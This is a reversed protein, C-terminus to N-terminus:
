LKKCEELMSNTWTSRMSKAKEDLAAVKAELKQKESTELVSLEQDFTAKKDAIEQDIKAQLSALVDSAEEEVQQIVSQKEIQLKRVREQAKHDVDVIHNIVNEEM